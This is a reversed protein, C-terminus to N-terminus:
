KPLQTARFRTILSDADERVRPSPKVEHYKHDPTIDYSSGDVEITFWGSPDGEHRSELLEIRDAHTDERREMTLIPGIGQNAATAYGRGSLFEAAPGLVPPDILGIGNAPPVMSIGASVQYLQRTCGITAATAAIIAATKLRRM